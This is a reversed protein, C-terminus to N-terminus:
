YCAEFSSIISVSIRLVADPNIPCFYTKIGFFYISLYTVQNIQVNVFIM